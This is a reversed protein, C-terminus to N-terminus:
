LTAIILSDPNTLYYGYLGYSEKYEGGLQHNKIFNWAEEETKFYEVLDVEGWFEYWLKYYM